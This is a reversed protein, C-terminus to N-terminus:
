RFSVGPSSRPGPDTRIGPRVQPRSTSLSSRADQMCRRAHRDRRCRVAHCGRRRAGRAGRRLMAHLHMRMDSFFSLMLTACGLLSTVDVCRWPRPPRRQVRCRRACRTNLRSRSCLLLFALQHDAVQAARRHAPTCSVHRTIQRDSHSGGVRTGM